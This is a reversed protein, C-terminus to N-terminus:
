RKFRRIKITTGLGPATQIVMEDTLNRTGRLGVGMGNKSRYRGALIADVDRIGPGRDSAIAEIGVPDPGLVRLQLHGRGAYMVINRCLESVATAVKMQEDSAFGLQSCLLKAETRAFVVDADTAITIRQPSLTSAEIPRRSSAPASEVLLAELTTLCARLAAPNGLFVPLASRLAVLAEVAHSAEIGGPGAGVKEEVLKLMSMANLPSLHLKLADLLRGRLTEPTPKASAIM